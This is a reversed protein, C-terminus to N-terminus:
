ETGEEASSWTSINGSEFDDRFILFIEEPLDEPAAPMVEYMGLAHVSVMGKIFDLEQGPTLTEYELMATLRGRSPVGSADQFLFIHAKPNYATIVVNNFVVYSGEFQDIEESPNFVNPMNATSLPSPVPFAALEEEIVEMFGMDIHRTEGNVEQILGGAHIARIARSYDPIQAATEPTLTVKVGSRPGGEM